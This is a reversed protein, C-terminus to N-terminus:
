MTLLLKIPIEIGSLTLNGPTYRIQPIRQCLTPNNQPILVRDRSRFEHAQSSMFSPPFVMKPGKYLAKQYKEAESICSTHGKYDAPTNFTKSCDICDFGTGCRSRHQDLKPKKVVDSCGSLRLPQSRSTVFTKPYLVMVDTSSFLDIKTKQM